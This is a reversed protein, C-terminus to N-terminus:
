NPKEKENAQLKDDNAKEIEVENEWQCRSKTVLLNKEKHWQLNSKWEFIDGWVDCNSLKM